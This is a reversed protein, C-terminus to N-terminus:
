ILSLKRATGAGGAGGFTNYDNANPSSGGAGGNAQVVITSSDSQYFVTVSGGGSGGGGPGDLRTASGGTVGNASITGSGALTNCFIVLVGGTGDGGNNAPKLQNPTGGEATRGLGGPNGAGGAADSGGGHAPEFALADGGAGGNSIANDGVRTGSPYTQDQGAGGTGSGGSFSTGASANGSFTPATTNRQWSAGSGGGGTGGASGATGTGGVIGQNLAAPSVGAAGAGGSSPVQPNSVSSFTGTHLRIAGSTTAGGSNGTGSHNAGRATMSISGNVTLTGTVYICTFLKRNAPRFTQGSDITLNGQVVVFASRTDATATFWDSNNFSSVTQNGSKALYDYSGLSTGNVVLTGGSAPTANPVSTNSMATVLSYLDNTTQNGGNFLFSRTNQSAVSGLIPM